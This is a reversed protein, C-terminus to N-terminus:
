GMLGIVGNKFSNSDYAQPAKLICKGPEVGMSLPWRPGRSSESDFRGSTPIKRSEALFICQGRQSSKDSNNRYSADPIGLIRCPGQLRRYVLKVPEAKTCRILKNLARLDGITPSASASALRSFRYAIHYQTRSQLWNLSGLGSRFAAHLAPDCAVDDKLTKDFEFEKLEEVAANQDVTIKGDLKRVRQGTFIIENKGESGVQFDLRLRSLVRKELEDSGTIFLDDVHLCIVGVVIKGVANSTSFPDMLLNIAKEITQMDMAEAPKGSARNKSIGSKQLVTSPADRYLVYCCRDARTPVMGYNVLAKDIVNFWKRPADNMGYAPKILRAAM